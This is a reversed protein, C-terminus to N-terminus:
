FISISMLIEDKKMEATDNNEDSCAPLVLPLFKFGHSTFFHKAWETINLSKDRSPSGQTLIFIARKGAEFRSVKSSTRLCYWRDSFIKAYGSLFGCHNPTLFIVRDAALLQPYITAMDDDQVCLTDNQKCSRCAQCPKINLERLNILTAESGYKEYILKALYASNGKPRPSTNIIITRM